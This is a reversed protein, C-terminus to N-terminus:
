GNKGNELLQQLMAKISEVDSKLQAMEAQQQLMNERRKLEQRIKGKNINMIMGTKPDRALDPHDKVPILDTM